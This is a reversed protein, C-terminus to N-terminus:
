EITTFNINGKGVLKWYKSDQINVREVSGHFDHIITYCEKSLRKNYDPNYALVESLLMVSVMGSDSCFNGLVEDSHCSKIVTEVLDGNKSTFFTPIGIEDLKEGYGCDAWDNKSETRIIYCPDTILIDGDFKM